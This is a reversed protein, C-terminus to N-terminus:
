LGLKLEVANGNLTYLSLDVPSSNYSLKVAAANGIAVEVPSLSTLQLREGGQKVGSFLIQGSNDRVELWSSDVFEVLLVDGQAASLQSGAVHDSAALPFANMDLTQIKTGGEVTGVEVVTMSDIGVVVVAPQESRWWYMSLLVFLLVSLAGLARMVPATSFAKLRERKRLKVPAANARLYSEYAEVVAEKELGVCQAYSRLYGRVFITGPLASYDDTELAVIYRETLNLRQAVDSSTWGRGQRAKKLQEGVSLQSAVLTLDVAGKHESLNEALNNM